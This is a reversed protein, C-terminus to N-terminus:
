NENQERKEDWYYFQWMTWDLLDFGTILWVLIWIPFTPIIAMGILLQIIAILLKILRKKM